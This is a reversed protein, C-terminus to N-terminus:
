IRKVKFDAIICIFIKVAVVVIIVLGVVNIIKSMLKGRKPKFPQEIQISDVNSQAKVSTTGLVLLLLLLITKIM